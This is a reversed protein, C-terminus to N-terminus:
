LLLVITKQITKIIFVSRVCETEKLIDSGAARGASGHPGWILGM